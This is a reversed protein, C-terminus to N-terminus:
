NAKDIKRRRKKHFCRLLPLFFTKGTTGSTYLIYLAKNAEVPVCDHSRNVDMAEEWSVDRGPTMSAVEPLGPRQYIICRKPVIGSMSIAQDLLPKYRSVNSLFDFFLFSSFSLLCRRLLFFSKTSVEGARGLLRIWNTPSGM